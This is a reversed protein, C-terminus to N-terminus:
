GLARFFGVRDDVLDLRQDARCPGVLAAGPGQRGGIHKHQRWVVRLHHQQALLQGGSPKAIDSDPGDVLELAGCAGTTNMEIVAEDTSSM